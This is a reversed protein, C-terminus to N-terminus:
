QLEKEKTTKQISTDKASKRKALYNEHEQQFTEYKYYYTDKIYFYKVIPWNLVWDVLGVDRALTSAIFYCIGLVFGVMVGVIVQPVTHYLLYIRSFAVAVMGTIMLLYAFRKKRAPMHDVKFHITYIFYAAFFGMFQSHASPMGYTLSYSGLGFDKHFDPRPHKILRKVIKNAIENCLHGGVAIVPEIERTILFWATYFVMIYIPLLSFQVCIVSIVDQPDYLIYTHDFPVPQYAPYITTLNSNSNFSLM